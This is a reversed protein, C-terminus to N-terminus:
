AVDDGGEPVPFRSRLLEGFHHCADTMTFIGALRDEKMVLASGIHAESMHLLVSDLREGIDIVYVELACVDGVRLIEAGPNGTGLLARRIDRDSIVGILQGQDIVPLHRIAHETMMRSAVAVSDEASVTYPFPTMVTLVAPIHKLNNWYM